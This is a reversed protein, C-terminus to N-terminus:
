WIRRFNVALLNTCRSSNYQSKWRRNCGQRCLWRRKGALTKKHLGISALEANTVSYVKAGFKFDLLTSLTFNKYKFDNSFGGTTKYVGSGLSVLDDTRLPLGDAGFIKNGHTDRKYAFGMLQGYEKGVIQKVSFNGFRAPDGDGLVLSTVGPSLFLVKSNNFAINFSPKWSFNKTQLPAGSLLLELGRNRLKGINQVSSLYGSTSSISVDLIDDDTRKNYVAVDINLRSHLFSMNLGVETESIDIPKLFANPVTSQSIESFILDGSGYSVDRNSYTLASRYPDTGASSKAWSARLKGFTIWSPMHFADSFVFSGAVSPYFINNTKPNLTSFWDNRGTFSVFLYDKYGLDASGYFSNM